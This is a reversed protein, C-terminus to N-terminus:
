HYKEETEKERWIADNVTIDIAGIKKNLFDYYDRLKCKKSNLENIKNEDVQLINGNKAIYENFSNALSPQLKKMTAKDSHLELCFDGLKAKKLREYVVNLAALKESVFLVKKGKNLANAILNTITQSKGTGPPGQIVMSENRNSDIIASHQSTDAPSVLISNTSEKEKDIDYQHSDSSFSTNSKFIRSIDSSSLIKGINKWKSLDLDQYMAIRSFVFRGITVYRRVKWRPKSIIAKEVKDLYTEPTDEGTFDPLKMNFENFKIALSVNFQLVNDEVSVYSKGTKNNLKKPNLRLLLLPAYHKTESTKTEYWELFGLAIYLTNVGKGTVDENVKRYLAKTKKGLDDAFDLTQLENNYLKEKCLINEYDPNIGIERAWAIPTYTKNVREPLGLQERIRDKLERQIRAIEDPDFVDKDDLEKLQSLYIEDSAIAREYEEKFKKTKEDKPENDVEPLEKIHLEKGQLLYSYIHNISHNVIRIPGSLQQSFKFNLLGNRMTMDLLKKRAEEFSKIMNKELENM